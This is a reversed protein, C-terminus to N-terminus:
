IITIQFILRQLYADNIYDESADYLRMRQIKVGNYAEANISELLEKVSEAIEISEAYTTSLIALEVYAIERYNYVDKTDAQVISNRKYTIFPFKTGNEAVIPYVREIGGESLISNLAKGIQLSSM